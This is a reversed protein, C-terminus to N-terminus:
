GTPTAPTSVSPPEGPTRAPKDLWMSGVNHPHFGDVDKVPSISELIEREPLHGPLPLQVLIGDVTPDDDVRRLHQMFTDYEVDQPLRLTVGEIGVEHCSRTKSAVYTASAPNDGVLIAVLKPRRGGGAVLTEVGAAVETHLQRAIPKGKLIRPKTSM